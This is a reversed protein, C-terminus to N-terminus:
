CTFKINTPYYCTGGDENQLPATLLVRGCDPIHLETACDATTDVECAKCGGAGCVTESPTAPDTVLNTVQGTTEDTTAFYCCGNKFCLHTESSAFATSNFSPPTPNTPGPVPGCHEFSNSDGLLVTTLSEEPKFREKVNIEYQNGAAINTWVVGDEHHAVHWAEAPPFNGYTEHPTVYEGSTNNDVRRTSFGEEFEIGQRVWIFLKNANGGSISYTYIRRGNLTQENVTVTFDGPVENGQKTVANCQVTTVQAFVNTAVLLAAAAIVVASLLISERTQMIKRRRM